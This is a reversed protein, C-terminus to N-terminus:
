YVYNDIIFGYTNNVYNMFQNFSSVISAKAVGYQVKSKAVAPLM